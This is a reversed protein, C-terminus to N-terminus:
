QPAVQKRALILPHSEPPAQVAENFGSGAVSEKLLRFGVDTLIDKYDELAYSSWYMIAGFFDEIYTDEDHRPLSCLLYGGPRLWDHIRQFLTPHEKRPIHFISYFATAADFTSPAFEASMVDSRIFVGAPVNARAFHIMSDSVDVGTVSFRKALTRAVPVGAGCGVDLVAAGDDLVDMLPDLERGAESKRSEHYAAACHDYGSRM